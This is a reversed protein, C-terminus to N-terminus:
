LFSFYAMCLSSTQVFSCNSAFPVFRHNERKKATATATYIDLYLLFGYKERVTTEQKKAWVKSITIQLFSFWAMCVGGGEGGVM